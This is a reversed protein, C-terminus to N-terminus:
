ANPPSAGGSASAGGAGNEHSGALAGPPVDDRLLREGPECSFPAPPADADPPAEGGFAYLVGTETGHLLVGDFLGLSSRTTGPVSLTWLLDGSKADLAFVESGSAANRPVYIIGDGFVPAGRVNGAAAYPWVSQVYAAAPLTRPAGTKPSPMM